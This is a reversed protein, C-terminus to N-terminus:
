PHAVSRLEVREGGAGEGAPSYREGEFGEV